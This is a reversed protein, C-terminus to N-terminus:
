NPEKEKFADLDNINYHERLDDIFSMVAIDDWRRGLMRSEVTTANGIVLSERGVVVGGCCM